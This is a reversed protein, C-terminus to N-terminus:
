RLRAARSSTPGLTLGLVAGAASDIPFHVGAITRNVRRSLGAAHVAYGRRRPTPSSHLLRATGGAAQLLKWLVIASMFTETAHGSPFSSHSPTLIMPQVQPSYENRRRSALAQKLRMHRLEGAAARRGAAGAYLAHAVSPPLSDFGLFAVGGSMQTM